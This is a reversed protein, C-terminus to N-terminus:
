RRAKGCDVVVVKKENRIHWRMFLLFKVDARGVLTLRVLIAAADEAHLYARETLGTGFIRLPRNQRAAHLLRGLMSDEALDFLRAIVVRLGREIASREALLTALVNPSANPSLILPDTEKAVGCITRGYVEASSALLLPRDYEECADLINQTLAVDSPALHFVRDAKCVRERIEERSADAIAIGALHESLTSTGIILASM